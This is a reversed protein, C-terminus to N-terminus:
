RFGGGFGPNPTGSGCNATDEGYVYVQFPYYFSDVAQVTVSLKVECGSGTSCSAVTSPNTSVSPNIIVNSDTATWIYRFIHYDYPSAFQPSAECFQDYQTAFHECFCSADVDVAKSEFTMLHSMVLILIIKKMKKDGTILSFILTATKKIAM